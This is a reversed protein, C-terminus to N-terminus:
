ISSTEIGSSDRGLYRDGTSNQTAPADHLDVVMECAQGVESWLTGTVRNGEIRIEAHGPAFPAYYRSQLSAAPESSFGGVIWAGQGTDPADYGEVVVSLFGGSAHGLGWGPGNRHICLIVTCSADAKVDRPLFAAAAGPAFRYCSYILHEIIFIFPPSPLDTYVPATLADILSDRRKVRDM